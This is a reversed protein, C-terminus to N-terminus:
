HHKLLAPLNALIDAPDQYTAFCGHSKLDAESFGGCLVGVVSLGARRAAVADHPTDGIVIVSNKPPNGLNRMAAEFIDPAPKTKEAEDSSASEEVLDEIQAIIEYKEVDKKDSSSALAIKGGANRISKFLERVKPFPRVQFLYQERFIRGQLEDLEEGLEKLEKKDLFAPLFQDSGKGIHPRIQKLSIDKGKASFAKQWAMAHFDNSDVLTGDIDFIFFKSM